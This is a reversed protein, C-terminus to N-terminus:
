FQTARHMYNLPNNQSNWLKIIALDYVVDPLVMRNQTCSESRAPTKDM